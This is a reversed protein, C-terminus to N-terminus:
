EPRIEGNKVALELGLYEALSHVTSGRVDRGEALFRSLASQDVGAGKAIRYRTTGGDLAAQIAARLAESLKM